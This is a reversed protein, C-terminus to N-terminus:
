WSATPRWLLSWWHVTHGWGIVQGGDIVTHAGGILLAASYRGHSKDSRVRKESLLGELSFGELSFAAEM